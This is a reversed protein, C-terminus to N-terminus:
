GRNLGKFMNGPPPQDLIPKAVLRTHVHGEEAGGQKQQSRPSATFSKCLTHIFIYIYTHMYTIYIYVYM